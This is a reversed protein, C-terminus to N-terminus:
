SRAIRGEYSSRIWLREGEAKITAQTGMLPSVYISPDKAERFLPEFGQNNLWERAAKQTKFRKIRPLDHDSWYFNDGHPKVDMYVWNVVEINYYKAM